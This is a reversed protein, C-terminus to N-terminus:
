SRSPFIGQLAIRFNFTLYPMLNNHPQNGGTLRIALQSPQTNSATQYPSGRTAQASAANQNVLGVDATDQRACRMNHNHVPM